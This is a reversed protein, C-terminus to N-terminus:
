YYYVENEFQYICRKALLVASPLARGEARSDLAVVVRALWSCSAQNSWVVALSESSSSPQVYVGADPLLFVGVQDGNELRDVLNEEDLQSGVAGLQEWRSWGGAPAWSCVQVAKVRSISRQKTYIELEPYIM